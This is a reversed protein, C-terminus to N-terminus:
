FDQQSRFAGYAMAGAAILSFFLGWKRKLDLGAAEAVDGDPISLVRFLVLLLALGCLGLLIQSPPAPLKALPLTGMAETVILAVVAIAILALFIDGPGLAEWGSATFNSGDIGYWPLLLGIFLAVAGGAAIQRGLGIKTLDM